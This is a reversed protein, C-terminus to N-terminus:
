GKSGDRQEGSNRRQEAATITATGGSNDRQEEIVAPNCTFDQYHVPFNFAFGLMVAAFIFFRSLLPFCRSVPAATISM